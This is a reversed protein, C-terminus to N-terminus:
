PMESYAYEAKTQCTCECKNYHKSWACQHSKTSQGVKNAFRHGHKDYAGFEKDHHRVIVRRTDLPNRMTMHSYHKLGFKDTHRQLGRGHFDKPEAGDIHKNNGTRIRKWEMKHAYKPPSNRALKSEGPNTHWEWTKPGTELDCTVHKCGQCTAFGSMLVLHDDENATSDDFHFKYQLSPGDIVIFYSHYKDDAMHTSKLTVNVNNLSMYLQSKSGGFKPERVDFRIEWPGRSGFDFRGSVGGSFAKPVLGPRREDTMEVDDRDTGQKFWDLKHEDGGHCRKMLNMHILKVSDLNLSRHKSKLTIENLGKFLDVTTAANTWVGDSKPFDLSITYSHDVAEHVIDHALGHKTEYRYLVKYRGAVPVNIKITAECPKGSALSKSRVYGRGLFGKLSGGVICNKREVDDYSELEIRKEWPCIHINCPSTEKLIPSCPKGYVTPHKKITRVRTREGGACSKSCTSYDSWQSLVCDETTDICTAIPNAPFSIDKQAGNKFVFKYDLVLDSPATLPNWVFAHETIWGNKAQNAWLTIKKKGGFYVDVHQIDPKVPANLKAKLEIKFPGMGGMWLSGSSVKKGSEVV